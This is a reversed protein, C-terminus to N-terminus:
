EKERGKKRGKESKRGKGERKREKERERGKESKGIIILKKRNRQKKERQCV